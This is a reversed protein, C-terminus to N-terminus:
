SKAADMHRIAEALTIAKWGHWKACVCNSNSTTPLPESMLRHEHGYIIRERPQQDKADEKVHILRLNLEDIRIEAM